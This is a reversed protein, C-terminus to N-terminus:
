NRYKILWCYHMKKDRQFDPDFTKDSIEEMKFDALAEQDLKFKRFNTSFILLGNQKLSRLTLKILEVHNEQIDLITNTRKSNSFTPPDLLIVDFKRKNERLWQVCDSEIVQNSTSSFGNLAMNKRAWHVYTPSLDVSVSDKAGAFAAYVSATATYCFLNLFSKNKVWQRLLRRVPRHDLFLGTDLYDTLNLLFKCGYETVEYYQNQQNIKQYQNNGKQKQREKVIINKPNIALGQTLAILIEKFRLEVKEPEITKPAAYEQVHVYEDYCDIAASYEPLDADYLRYCNINEQKLWAALKKKNKKLRNILMEVGPSLAEEQTKQPAHDFKPKLSQTNNIAYLFFDCLLPGNYFHYKKHPWLKMAKALEVNATLLALQWDTFEAKTREALNQYMFPLTGLDSLREGYPPNTIILGPKDPEAPKHWNALECQHLSIYDNLGLRELNSQAHLITKSEADYGYLKPLPQLLGQERRQLAEERLHKWLAIDHQQWGLFGFYDRLLGPAIDAAMMLAEILITASGCLPDILTTQEKALMPWNARILLATALNEKLPAQGVELRYGRRHLSEGSLDLYVIAKTQNLYVNVRVDPEEKDITPRQNTKFRIQDVIADKVKQAGFMTNRIEDNEGHFDVWLTAAPSIHQLWDVSQVLQYLEQAASIEGEGLTLLVRNALRSWLCTRYIFTLDGQAYVGGVTQKCQQSGLQVLEEALLNEM